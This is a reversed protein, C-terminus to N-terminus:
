GTSRSRVLRAGLSGVVFGCFLCAALQKAITWARDNQPWYSVEGPVYNVAFIALMVSVAISAALIFDLWPSTHQRYGHAVGAVGGVAALTPLTSYQFPLPTASALVYGALAILVAAIFLCMSFRWGTSWKTGPRSPLDVLISRPSRSSLVANIQEVLLSVDAEWRDHRLAFAQRRALPKLANPLAESPPPKQDQLTIPIVLVGRTLAAGVEMRVFDDPDDIRRVGDPNCATLWSKGILALLVKCRKLENRIATPFDAGPAVDDVDLYIAESGFYRALTDRLARADGSSDERRYSIFIKSM